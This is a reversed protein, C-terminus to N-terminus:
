LPGGETVARIDAIIDIVYRIIIDVLFIIYCFYAVSLPIELAGSTKYSMFLVYDLSPKFSISLAVALLLNGFIRMARQGRPGAVDYVMSFAVMSDSRKAFLAGLLAVWLFAILALEEPWMLPTFFYRSVIQLLFCIFITLFALIPVYVEIVDLLVRSISALRSVM